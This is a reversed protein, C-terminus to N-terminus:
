KNKSQYKMKSKRIASKREEETGYHTIIKNWTEPKFTNIKEELAKEQTEDYDVKRYKGQMVISHAMKQSLLYREYETIKPDKIRETIYIHRLMSVSLNKNIIKRFINSLRSIYNSKTLSFLKDGDKLDNIEIYNRLIKDLRTEVEIIQKGYHNKTKYKEFVFYSEKELRKYSNPNQDKGNKIIKRLNYHTDNKKISESNTWLITSSDNYLEKKDNIYMELYDDIRRVPHYIYLSLIVYDLYADETNEVITIIEQLKKYVHLIIKWSVYKEKEKDTLKNRMYNINAKERHNKMSKSLIEIIHVNKGNSKSYNLIASMIIDQTTPPIEKEEFYEMLKEVNLNDIDIGNKKLKELSLKYAKITNESLVNESM